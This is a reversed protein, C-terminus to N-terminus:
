SVPSNHVRAAACCTIIQTIVDTTVVRETAQYLSRAAKVTDKSTLDPELDSVNASCRSLLVKVQHNTHSTHLPLQKQVHKHSRCQWHCHWHNVQLLEWMTPNSTYIYVAHLLFPPVLSRNPIDNRHYHDPIRAVEVVQLEHYSNNTMQHCASYFLLFEPESIHPCLHVSWAPWWRHALFLVATTCCLLFLNWWVAYGYMSCQDSAYIHSLLPLKCDSYGSLPQCTFDIWWSSTQTAVVHIKSFEGM